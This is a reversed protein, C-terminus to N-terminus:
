NVFPCKKVPFNDKITGGNSGTWYLMVVSTPLFSFLLHLSYDTVSWLSWYGSERQSGKQVCFTIITGVLVSKYQNHHALRDKSVRIQAALTSSPQTSSKRRLIEGYIHRQRMLREGLEPDKQINDRCESSWFLQLAWNTSLMSCHALDLTPCLDFLHRDQSLLLNVAIVLQCEGSDCLGRM